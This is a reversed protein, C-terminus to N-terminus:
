LPTAWNRGCDSHDEDEYLGFEPYYQHNGWRFMGNQAVCRSLFDDVYRDAAQAYQPDGTLESLAHASAIMPQDWYLTSGRPAGISRYVRQPLHNGEPYRGTRVDLASAWFAGDTEATASMLRRLHSECKPLYVTM